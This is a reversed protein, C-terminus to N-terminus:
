GYALAFTGPLLLLAYFLYTMPGFTADTICRKSIARMAYWIWRSAARCRLDEWNNKLLFRRSTGASAITVAYGLSLIGFTTNKPMPSLPSLRTCPHVHLSLQCKLALRVAFWRSLYADYCHGTRAVLVATACFFKSLLTTSCM